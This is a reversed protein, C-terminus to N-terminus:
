DYFLMDMIKMLNEHTILLHKRLTEHDKLKFEAAFRIDQSVNLFLWSLDGLEGRTLTKLKM